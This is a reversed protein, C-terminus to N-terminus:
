EYTQQAGCRIQITGDWLGDMDEAIGAKTITVAYPMYEVLTIFQHVNAWAGKVEMTAQLCQRSASMGTDAARASDVLETSLVSVQMAVRADDAVAELLELFETPNDVSVLHALLGDRQAATSLLLTRTDQETRELIQLTTREDVLANRELELVRLQQLLMYYSGAVAVCILAAGAFIKQTTTIRRM